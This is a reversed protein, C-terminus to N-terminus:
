AASVKVKKSKIASVQCVFRPCPTGNESVLVFAAKNLFRAIDPTQSPLKMCEHFALVSFKLSHKLCLYKGVLHKLSEMPKFAMKEGARSLAFPM